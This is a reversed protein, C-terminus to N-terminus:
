GRTALVVSRASRQALDARVCAMARGLVGAHGRPLDDPDGPLV